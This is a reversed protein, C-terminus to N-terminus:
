RTSGRRPKTTGRGDFRAGIVRPCRGRYRHRSARELRLRPRHSARRSCGPTAFAEGVPPPFRVVTGDDLIVGNTEGRGGTLARRVIGSVRMDRESWARPAPPLPPPADTVSRGTTPNTIRWARVDTARALMRSMGPRAVSQVAHSFNKAGNGGAGTARVSAPAPANATLRNHANMSTRKRACPPLRVGAANRDARFSATAFTAIM